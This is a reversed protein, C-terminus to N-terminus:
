GEDMLTRRLLREAVLGILLSAMGLALLYEKSLLRDSYSEFYAVRMWEVCQVVPNYSLPIAIQDPLNPTVFLCGSTLYFVLGMLAYGTAFMPIFATIVGAITGIGIALLITALYAFVAQTPDAPYPSLGLSMYMLWMFLLTISGAVIELFARAFLIDTVKVIPFSLMNKNIAVSLSMFRSIYTFTLTPIVGVGFFILPNDGYPAVRGSFTNIILIILIHMFPWLSQVIFGLGHNFFRSRMDRLIVAAM